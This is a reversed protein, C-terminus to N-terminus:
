GSSPRHLPFPQAGGMQACIMQLQDGTATGTCRGPVGNNDRYEWAVATGIITGAGIGAPYQPSSIRMANGQQQIVYTAHQFDHWPGSIDVVTPAPEPRVVPDVSIPRPAPDVNVPAPTPTPTPAPSPGPQPAPAVPAKAGVELYKAGIIGGAGILAVVVAILGSKESM